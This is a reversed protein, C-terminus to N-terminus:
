RWKANGRESKDCLKKKVDGNKHKLREVRRNENSRTAERRRKQEATSKIGERVVTM